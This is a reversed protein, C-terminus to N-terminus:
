RKWIVFGIIIFPLAAFIYAMEVNILGNLAIGLGFYVSVIAAISGIRMSIETRKIYKELDMQSYIRLKTSLIPMIFSCIAICSCYLAMLLVVRNFVSSDKPITTAIRLLFAFLIGSFSTLISTERYQFTKLHGSANDDGEKSNDGEGTKALDLVPQV